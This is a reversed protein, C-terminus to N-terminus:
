LLSDIILERRKRKNSKLLSRSFQIKRTLVKSRLHEKLKRKRVKIFNGNKGNRPADNGVEHKIEIVLLLELLEDKFCRTECGRKNNIFTVKTPRIIGTELLERLKDVIFPSVYQLYPPHKSLEEVQKDNLFMINEINM